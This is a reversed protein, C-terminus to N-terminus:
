FWRTVDIELLVVSLWSFGIAVTFPILQLNQNNKLNKYDIINKFLQTFKGSVLAQVLGLLAGWVFSFFFLTILVVPTFLPSLALLLKMDGAGVAKMLVFPLSIALVTLFSFAIDTFLYYSFNFGQSHFVFILNVFFISLVLSNHVKKTWLDDIISIM